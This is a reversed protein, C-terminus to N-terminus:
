SADRVLTRFTVNPTAGARVAVQTFTRRDFDPFFTDGEVDREIDTLYVRTAIPLAEAFLSAGGIVFPCDDDNRAVAIASPLDAARDCGEFSLNPQRTVVINRRKPLPKGISEFTKRGMIVAHGLTTRKFHKLDEPIHWPLKGDRGIVRNNAMAVIIALDDSM